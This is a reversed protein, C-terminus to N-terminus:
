TTYSEAVMLVVTPSRICGCAYDACIVCTCGTRWGCGVGCLLPVYKALGTLDLPAFGCLLSGVSAVTCMPGYGGCGCDPPRTTGPPPLHLTPGPKQCGCWVFQPSASQSAPDGGEAGGKAAPLDTRLDTRQLPTQGTM